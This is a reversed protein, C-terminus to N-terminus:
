SKRSSLLILIGGAIAIAGAIPQIPISKDKDKTIEIPGIEVVKEKRTFDISQFALGAIGLILLIVGLTLKSNM